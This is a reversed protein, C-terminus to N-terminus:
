RSATTASSFRPRPWPQGRSMQPTSGSPESARQVVPRPPPLPSLWCSTRWIAGSRYAILGSELEDLVGLLCLGLARDSASTPAFGLIFETRWLSDRVVKPYEMFRGHNRMLDFIERAYWQYREQLKFAEIHAGTQADCPVVQLKM